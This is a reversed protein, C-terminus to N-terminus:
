AVTGHNLPDSLHDTVTGGARARVHPPQLVAAPARERLQDVAARVLQVPLSTVTARLLTYSVSMHLNCALKIHAFEATVIRVDFIEFGAIDLVGIFHDRSIGQQDLTENCRLHNAAYISQTDTHESQTDVM